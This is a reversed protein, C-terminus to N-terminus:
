WGAGMEVCALRVSLPLMAIKPPPFGGRKAREIDSLSVSPCASLLEAYRRENAERRAKRFAVVASSVLMTDRTMAAYNM